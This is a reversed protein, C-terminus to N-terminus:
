CKDRWHLRSSDWRHARLPKPWATTYGSKRNYSSNAPRSNGGTGIRGDGVSTTIIQVVKRITVVISGRGNTTRKAVVGIVAANCQPRRIARGSGLGPSVKRTDFIDRAGNKDGFAAPPQSATTTMVTFGFHAIYHNWGSYLM